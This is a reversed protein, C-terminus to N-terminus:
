PHVPVPRTVLEQVERRPPAPQRCCYWISVAAIVAFIAWVHRFHLVQENSAEVAVAVIAALLPAPALGAISLQRAADRGLVRSMRWTLSAVLLLLGISGLPGREVFSAIYDNHAEKPYAAQEEQLVAKTARPGWGLLTGQAHLDSIESFITLRQAVSQDSRGLSDRLLPQGSNEALTQVDALQVASAAAVALLVYACTAALAAPAGHRQYVWFIAGAGAGVLLSLFAGNSGTLVMAALLLATAAWRLSRRVPCGAVWLLILTLMFYSSALNPDGFTLSARAGVRASVGALDQHGSVYAAVLFTAWALGSWCWTRLLTRMAASTRSANVIVGCWLLLALDQILQTLSLVPFAGGLGALAGAAIVVAVAIAYPFRLSERRSM